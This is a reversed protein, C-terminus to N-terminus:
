TNKGNKQNFLDTLKDAIAFVREALELKEKADQIRLDNLETVRQDKKYYAYGMIILLAGTIGQSAITTVISDPPM